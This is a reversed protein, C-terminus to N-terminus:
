GSIVVGCGISRILRASFCNSPPGRQSALMAAAALSRRVPSNRVQSPLTAGSAASRGANALSFQSHV